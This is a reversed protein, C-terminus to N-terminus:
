STVRPLQLEVETGEGVDTTIVARGGHRQLRGVISEKIGRRDPGITAPDFGKGRDRVFVTERDPEVEVYVSVLAEGSHRAANVMAERAASVLPELAVDSPCDRVRVVDVRVGYADEIDAAVAELVSGLTDGDPAPRDGHLLWARLEREQSRALRRVEREDGAKRQVLALTQLVSDHLHAAMDAREAARVRERREEGLADVLRAITPGIALALGLVVIVSGVLAGRLAPWSGVSTALAILGSLVLLAGGAVRAVNGRRTGVLAALADAAAPPLRDFHLAPSPVPTGPRSWVLALGVCAVALPWVFADGLWWGSARLLLLFGLVVAGLAVLQLADSETDRGRAAGPAATPAHEAVPLVVWAGAYLAVGIGGAVTLLVFALRVVNPEVRFTEGLGAAVGALLRGDARRHLHLRISRAPVAVALHDRRAPRV